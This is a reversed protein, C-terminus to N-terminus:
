KDEKMMWIRIDPIDVFKLDTIHETRYQPSTTGKPLQGLYSYEGRFVYGRVLEVKNTDKESTVLVVAKVTDIKTLYWGKQATQKEQSFILMPLLVIMAIIRKM